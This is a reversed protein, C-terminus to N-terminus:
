TLVTKFQNKSPFVLLQNILGVMNEKIKQQFKFMIEQRSLISSDKWTEFAALASQGAAAM